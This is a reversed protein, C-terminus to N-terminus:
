PEPPPEVPAVGGGFRPVALKAVSSFDELEPVSVLREEEGVRVTLAEGSPEPVSVTEGEETVALAAVVRVKM